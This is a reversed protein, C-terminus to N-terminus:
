RSPKKKRDHELGYRGQYLFETRSNRGVTRDLLDGIEHDEYGALKIYKRVESAKGSFRRTLFKIYSDELLELDSKLGEKRFKKINNWSSFSSARAAAVSLPIKAVEEPSMMKKSPNVDNLLPLLKLEQRDAKNFTKMMAACYELHRIPLQNHQNLFPHYRDPYRPSLLTLALKVKIDIDPTTNSFAHLWKSTNSPLDMEFLPVGSLYYIIWAQEKQEEKDLKEEIKLLPIVTQYFEPLDNKQLLSRLKFIPNNEDQFVEAYPPPQLTKDFQIASDGKSLPFISCIIIAISILSKM